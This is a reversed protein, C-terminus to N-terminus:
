DDNTIDRLKMILNNNQINNLQPNNWKYDRFLNELKIQNYLIYDLSLYQLVIENTLNLIEQNKIKKCCKSYINNFYFDFFSLRKLVLPAPEDPNNEDIIKNGNGYPENISLKNEISSDNLLPFDDTKSIIEKKDPTFEKNLKDNLEIIEKPYKLIKDVMEYNSFGQSYFSFISSFVFKLTSFLAGINAIVDLLQLKIRKYEIYEKHENLLYVNVLNMYYKDTTPDWFITDKKSAGVDLVTKSNKIEGFIYQRKRKTLSDFLSKQDQYIITEWYLNLTEYISDLFGINFSFTKPIDETIVM